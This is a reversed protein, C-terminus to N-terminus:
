FFDVLFFNSLCHSTSTFCHSVTRNTNVSILMHLSLRKPLNRIAWSNLMLAPQHYHNWSPAQIHRHRKVAKALLSNYQKLKEAYVPSFQQGLYIVVDVIYLEYIDNSHVNEKRKHAGLFIFDSFFRFKITWINKQRISFKIKVVRPFHLFINCQEQFM